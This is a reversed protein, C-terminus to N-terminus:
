VPFGWTAATMCRAFDVGCLDPGDGAENPKARDLNYRYGPWTRMHDAEFRTPPLQAFHEQAAVLGLQGLEDVTVTRCPQATRIALRPYHPAYKAKFNLDYTIQTFVNQYYVGFQGM